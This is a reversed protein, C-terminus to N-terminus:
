AERGGEHMDLLIDKAYFSFMQQCSWGFFLPIENQLFDHLIAVEPLVITIDIPLVPLGGGVEGAFKEILCSEQRTIWAFCYPPMYEPNPLPYPSSMFSVHLCVDRHSEVVVDKAVVLFVHFPTGERSPFVMLAYHYLYGCSRSLGVQKCGDDM